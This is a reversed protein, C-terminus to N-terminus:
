RAESTTLQLLRERQLPTLGPDAAVRAALAGRADLAALDDKLVGAVDDWLEGEALGVLVPWLDDIDVSGEPLLTFDLYAQPENAQGGRADAMRAFLTALGSAQGAAALTVMLDRIFHKMAKTLRMGRAGILHRLVVFADLAPDAAGRALADIGRRLVMSSWVPEGGQVALHRFFVEWLLRRDEQDIVAPRPSDEPVTDLGVAEFLPAVMPREDQALASGLQELEQRTIRGSHMLARLRARWGQETM